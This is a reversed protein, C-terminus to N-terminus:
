DEEMELIYLDDRCDPCRFKYQHPKIYKHRELEGGHGIYIIYSHPDFEDFQITLEDNILSIHFGEIMAVDLGHLWARRSIIIDPIKISDSTFIDAKQLPAIKINKDIQVLKRNLQIVTDRPTGHIRLFVTRGKQFFMTDVVFVDNDEVFDAGLAAFKLGATLKYSESLIFYYRGKGLLKMKGIFIFNNWFKEKERIRISILQGNDCMISMKNGLSDIFSEHKCLDLAYIGNRCIFLWVLIKIGNSILNNKKQVTV